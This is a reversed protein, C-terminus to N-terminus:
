RKAMEEYTSVGYKSFFAMSGEKPDGEKWLLHKEIDYETLPYEAKKSVDSVINRESLIRKKNEPKNNEAVVSKVENIGERELIPNSGRVFYDLLFDVLQQKSKKGTKEFAMVLQEKNFRVSTPDTKVSVKSFDVRKKNEAM